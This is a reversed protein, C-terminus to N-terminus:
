VDKEQIVDQKFQFVFQANICKVQSRVIDRNVTM